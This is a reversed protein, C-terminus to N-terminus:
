GVFLKRAVNDNPYCSTWRDVVLLRRSAPSNASADYSFNGRPNRRLESQV